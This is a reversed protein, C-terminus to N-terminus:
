THGCVSFFLLGVFQDLLQLGVLEEGHNAEQLYHNIGHGTGDGVSGDLIFLNKGLGGGFQIGGMRGDSPTLADGV